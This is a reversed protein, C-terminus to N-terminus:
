FMLYRRTLAALSSSSDSVLPEDSLFLEELAKQIREAVARARGMESEQPAEQPSSIPEVADRFNRDAMLGVVEDAAVLLRRLAERTDDGIHPALSALRALSPQTFRDRLSEPTAAEAELVPSFLAAIMAAFTLKRATILKVYRLGFKKGEIEQWRKAQYDVTITRWYRVVDNLLFRPVRPRREGKEHLYRAAIAEVLRSWSDAANLPVSEELLLIRRSLHLNTDTELGITNVFETGSVAVGFLGSSGPPPVGIATLAKTAAERYALIRGPDTELRNLIVLYDFDSGPAMEQRAMSGFAAILPETSLDRSEGIEQDLFATIASSAVARRETTRKAADALAPLEASLLEEADQLARDM